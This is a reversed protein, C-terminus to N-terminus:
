PSGASSELQPIASIWDRVCARDGAADIGSCRAADVKPGLLLYRERSVFPMERKWREEVERFTEDHADRFASAALAKLRQGIMEHVDGMSAQATFEYARELFPIAEAAAGGARTLVNAAALATDADAGLEVARGMDRAGEKRWADREADDHLFSPATFAMFQGCQMWIDVDQPRERTGRELYARAMRVDEETGQLPRYALLTDVLKYLPRYNPELELIADVYKPVERFERHESWHVGYQSLLTAWLLDVAAADWGLTSAHLQAPPPLAYIDAGQKVKHVTRALWPQLGLVGLASGLLFRWAWRDGRTM